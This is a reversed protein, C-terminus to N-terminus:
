SAKKPMAPEALSWPSAMVMASMPQMAPAMVTPVSASRMPRFLSSVTEETTKRSDDYAVPATPVKPAKRTARKKPPTPMPRAEPSEGMYMASTAGAPM